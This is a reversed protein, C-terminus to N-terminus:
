NDFRLMKFTDRQDVDLYDINMEIWLIQAESMIKSGFASLSVVGDKSSLFSSFYVCQNQVEFEIEEAIMYHECNGCKMFEGNPFLVGSIGKGQEFEYTTLNYTPKDQEKQRERYYQLVDMHNVSMDLGRTIGKGIASMLLDLVSTDEEIDIMPFEEEIEKIIEATVKINYIDFAERVQEEALGYPYKIPSRFFVPTQEM